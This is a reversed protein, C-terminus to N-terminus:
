CVDRCRHFLQLQRLQEICCLLLCLVSTTPVRTVRTIAVRGGRDFIYLVKRLFVLRVVEIRRRAHNLQSAVGVLGIFGLDFHNRRVLLRGVSQRLLPGVVVVLGSGAEFAVADFVKHGLHM